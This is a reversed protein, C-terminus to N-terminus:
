SCTSNERLKLGWKKVIMEVITEASVQKMCSQHTCKAFGRGNYCPRCELQDGGWVAIENESPWAFNQPSTPGFIGCVRCGVLRALHLAGGDHTILCFCQQLLALVELLSTSGILNLVPVNDFYSSLDRDKFLGILVCECEYHKLLEICRVYHQIPWIRLKKGDDQRDGGPFLAVLPQKSVYSMKPLTFSPWEIKESVEKGVLRLYELSHFRNGLPFNSKNKQFFRHKKKFCVLSLLKYRPDRHATLVLDFKRFFFLRWVKVVEMFKSFVDGHLLKYEDVVCTSHVGSIAQLLPASEKGVIWTIHCSKLSSLIPLCLVVDGIAGIKVVLVKRM